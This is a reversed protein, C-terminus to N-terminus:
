REGVYRRALRGDGWRESMHADGASQRHPVVASCSRTTTSIPVIDREGGPENARDFRSPSSRPHDTKRIEPRRPDHILRGTRHHLADPLRTGRSLASSRWRSDTLGSSSNKSRTNTTPKVWHVASMDFSSDHRPRARPNATSATSQHAHVPYAQSVLTTSGSSPETRMAMNTAMALRPITARQTGSANSSRASAKASAYPTTRPPWTARNASALRSSGARPRETDDRATLVVIATPRSMAAENKSAVTVAASHPRAITISQAPGAIKRASPHISPHFSTGACKASRWLRTIM